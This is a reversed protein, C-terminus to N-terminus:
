ILLSAQYLKIEDWTFKAGVMEKIPTLSGGEYDEFLDFLASITKGEM